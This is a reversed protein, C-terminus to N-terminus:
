VVVGGDDGLYWIGSLGLDVSPSGIPIELLVFLPIAAPITTIKISDGAAWTGTWFSSPVSIYPQFADPNQPAYTANRQGAPLTIGLSSTVLFTNASTFSLTLTQAITGAFNLILASETVTGASVKDLTTATPKVDGSEIASSIRTKVTQFNVTRSTPYDYELPTALTLTAEDGSWSVSSVRVTEYQGTSDTPSALNQIVVLGGNVFHNFARGQTIVVVTTLGATVATKLNGVGYKQGTKATEWTNTQTGALLSIPVGDVQRGLYAVSEKFLNSSASINHIFAKYHLSAGNTRQANTVNKILNGIVNNSISKSSDMMGGDGDTQSVYKSPRLVLDTTQLPM